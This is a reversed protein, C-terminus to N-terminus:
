YYEEKLREPMDGFDLELMQREQIQLSKPEGGINANSPLFTIPNNKGEICKFTRICNSHERFFKSVLAIM